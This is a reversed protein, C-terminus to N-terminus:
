LPSFLFTVEHADRSAALVKMGDHRQCAHMDANHYASICQGSMAPNSYRCHNWAASPGKQCAGHITSMDLM